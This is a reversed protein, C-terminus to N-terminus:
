LHVRIGAQFSVGGLDVVARRPAGGPGAPPSSQVMIVRPADPLMPDAEYYLKGQESFSPLIGGWEGPRSASTGELRRSRACLGRVELLLGVKRLLRYEVGAGAWFGVPMGKQSTKTQIRNYPDEWYSIYPDRGVHWVADYRIKMFGCIGAEATIDVKRAVPLTLLLGLRLSFAELETGESVHYALDEQSHHVAMYSDFLERSTRLWGVGIGVGLRRTLGLILDGSAEHGWHLSKRGGEVLDDVPPAFYVAAWDFLAQGGRNVDGGRVRACGGQLRFSVKVDALAPGSLLAVSIAAAAVRSGWRTM